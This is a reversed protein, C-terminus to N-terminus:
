SPRERSVVEMLDLLKKRHAGPPVRGFLTVLKQLELGTLAVAAPSAAQAERQEEIGEFFSSIPANLLQAADFLKSASIRNSGREYKQIQQFTIGLSTALETQSLKASRRLMRLRAGVHSDVPHVM